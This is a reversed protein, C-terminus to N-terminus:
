SRAPANALFRVNFKSSKGIGWVTSNSPLVKLGFSGTVWVILYDFLSVGGGLMCNSLWSTGRYPLHILHMGLSVINEMQSPHILIYGWRYM